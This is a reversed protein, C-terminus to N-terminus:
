QRDIEALAFLTMVAMLMEDEAAIIQGNHFVFLDAAEGEKYDGTFVINGPELRYTGDEKKLSGTLKDDKDAFCVIDEDRAIDKYVYGLELDNGDYIRTRYKYSFDYIGYVYVDGNEKSLITKKRNLLHDIDFNIVM